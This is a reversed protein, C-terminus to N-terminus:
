LSCPVGTSQLDFIKLISESNLRYKTAQKQYVSGQVPFMM